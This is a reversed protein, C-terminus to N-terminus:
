TSDQIEKKLQNLNLFRAKKRFNPLKSQALKINKKIDEINIISNDEAIGVLEYQQQREHAIMEVQHNTMEQESYEARLKEEWTLPKVHKHPLNDLPRPKM